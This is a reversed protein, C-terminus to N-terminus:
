ASGPILAETVQAVFSETGQPVDFFVVIFPVSAGPAIRRNMGQLGNRDRMRKQIEAPAKTRLDGVPIPNGCYAWAARVTSGTRDLLMAQIKIYAWPKQSRNQVSGKVVFIRAVQANNEWKGQLSSPDITLYATPEEHPGSLLPLKGMVGLVLAAVGILVSVGAAIGIAKEVGRSKRPPPASPEREDDEKDAPGEEGALDIKVRSEFAVETPRSPSPTIQEPTMRHNQELHLDEAGPARKRVFFAHKCKSCRVKRGRDPVLSEDLRFRTQCSKCQVIM